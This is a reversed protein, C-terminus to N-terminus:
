SWRSVFEPNFTTSDLFLPWADHEVAVAALEGWGVSSAKGWQELGVDLGVTFDAKVHVL